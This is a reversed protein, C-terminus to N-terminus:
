QYNTHIAGTVCILRDMWGNICGDKEMGGVQCDMWEGPVWQMGENM